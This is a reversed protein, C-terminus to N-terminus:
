RAYWEVIKPHHKVAEFLRTLKPFNKFVDAPIHDVTGKAFSSLAVFLKIDVVGLHEGGVFPGAGIQKEVSAGWEQMYGAAVEERARKKEEPDKIRLLPSLKMRLDEVADMIAEQKAAEWPDSPILGHLRGVLRLITNSQAIQGHGEVTLVPLAGFPVDAKRAQWEPGKLREDEFPVGAVHLALRCDEGRSGSFDFYTLKIRAM